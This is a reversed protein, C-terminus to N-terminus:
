PEGWARGLQQASARRRIDDVNGYGTLRTMDRLPNASVETRAVRLPLGSRLVVHRARFGLM